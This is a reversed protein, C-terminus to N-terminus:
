YSIKQYNKLPNETLICVLRYLHIIFILFRTATDNSIPTTKSRSNQSFTGPIEKGIKTRSHIAPPYRSILAVPLFYAYVVQSSIADAITKEAIVKRRPSGNVRKVPKEKVRREM